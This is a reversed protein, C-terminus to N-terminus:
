GNLIVFLWRLIAISHICKTYLIRKAAKATDSKDTSHRAVLLSEDVVRSQISKQVASPVRPVYNFQNTSIM